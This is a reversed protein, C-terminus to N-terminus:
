FTSSQATLLLFCTCSFQTPGGGKGEEATQVYNLIIILISEVLFQLKCKSNLSTLHQHHPTKFISCLYIYFSSSLNSLLLFALSFDSCFSFLFQLHLYVIFSILLDMNGDGKGNHDKCLSLLIFSYFIIYDKRRKKKTPFRKM